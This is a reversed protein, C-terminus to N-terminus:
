ERVGPFRLGHEEVLAPITAPDMELGYRAAIEGLRAPDPPGEGM